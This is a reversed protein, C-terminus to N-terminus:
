SRIANQGEPSLVWDIVAQGLKLNVSPHEDSKVPIIVYQNFIRWDGEVVIELEAKNTFSELHQPQVASPDDLRGIDHLRCVIEFNIKPQAM